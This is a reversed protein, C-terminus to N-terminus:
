LELDSTKKEESIGKDTVTYTEPIVGNLLTLDNSEVLESLLQQLQERDAKLGMFEQESLTDLTLTEHQVMVELVM